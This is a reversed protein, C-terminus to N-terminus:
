WRKSATFCGAFLGPNWFAESFFVVALGLMFGFGKVYWSDPLFFKFIHGLALEATGALWILLYLTLTLPIIAILGKFFTKTLPKMQRNWTNNNM